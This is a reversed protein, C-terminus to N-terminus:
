KGLRQSLEVLQNLKERAHGSDIAEEALRAAKKLDATINGAVLAAAANMVVTNRLAGKEGGLIRRM